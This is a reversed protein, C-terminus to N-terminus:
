LRAGPVWPAGLMWPGGARLLYGGSRVAGWGSVWGDDRRLRKSVRKGWGGAPLEPALRGM